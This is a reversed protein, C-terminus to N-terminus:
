LLYLNVGRAYAELCSRLQPSLQNVEEQAARYIGVTKALKDQTLLGLGFVGSLEGQSARRLLDMQFLRDRATLYGQAVYLDTESRAEIYPIARSDFKVFVPEQLDRLTILGDLPPLARQALWWGVVPVALAAIM